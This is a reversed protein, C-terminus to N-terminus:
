PINLRNKLAEMSTADVTDQHLNNWDHVQWFFSKKVTDHSSHKTGLKCNYDDCHRTLRGPAAFRDRPIAVESHVMKYTM